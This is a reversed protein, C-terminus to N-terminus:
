IVHMRKLQSLAFVLGFGAPLALEFPDRHADGVVRGDAVKLGRKRQQTNMNISRSVPSDM